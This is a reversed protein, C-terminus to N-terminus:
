GREKRLVWTTMCRLDQVVTTKIPDLLRGGLREGAALLFEQDVLYRQTGDPLECWRGDISRCRDEMGITSALRAFFLGGPRLVRWCGDLMAEFQADTHALHLVANCVVVDVSAAPRSIEELPEVRFNSAPLEPALRAALDIVQAVAEPERDVAFVEYGAQLFYRVNRGGGCGADFLSMGPTIRGRLVQDLLYIDIGGLTELLDTRAAESHTPDM